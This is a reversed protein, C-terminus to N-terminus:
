DPTDGLGAAQCHDLWAGYVPIGAPAFVLELPFIVKLHYPELAELSAARHCGDHPPNALQQGLLAQGAPM